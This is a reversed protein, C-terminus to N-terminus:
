RKRFLYGNGIALSPPGKLRFYWRNFLHAASAGYIYFETLESAIRKLLTVGHQALTRILWPASTKRLLLVRATSHELGGIGRPTREGRHKQGWLRWYARFLYTEPATANAEVIILWGGPRVVRALERLAAEADPIHMLVGICFVADFQGDAFSMRTLDELRYSVDGDAKLLAFESFDAGTVTFGQDALWRANTGTGCGADLVKAGSQLDTGSILQL